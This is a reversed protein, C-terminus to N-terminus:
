DSDTADFNEVVLALFTCLPANVVASSSIEECPDIDLEYPSDGFAHPLRNEKQPDGPIRIEQSLDSLGPPVEQSARPLKM